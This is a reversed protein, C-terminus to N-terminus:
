LVKKGYMEENIKNNGPYKDRYKLYREMKEKTPTYIDPQCDFIDLCESITTIPPKFFMKNGFMGTPEDSVEIGKETKRVYKDGYQVFGNEQERIMGFITKLSMGQLYDAVHSPKLIGLSALHMVVLKEDIIQENKM